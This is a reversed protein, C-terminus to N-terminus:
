QNRYVLLIPSQTVGYRMYAEMFLWQLPKKTYITTGHTSTIM